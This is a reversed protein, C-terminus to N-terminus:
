IDVAFAEYRAKGLECIQKVPTEYDGYMALSWGPCQTCLANVHCDRCPTQMSHKLNRIQEMSKWAYDFNQPLVNVSPKRAMMCPTMNGCSDIHFSLKAAGCAFVQESRLLQGNFAKATDKWGEMRKPDQLDYSIVKATPLQYQIPWKSGDLRPWITADARFDLGLNSALLEMDMLEHNNITLLVSKLNVNIGCDKARQIGTLAKDFSGPRRTVAEYTEQRAGYISVEMSYLGLDALIGATESDLLTANTFLTVLLGKNRAHAFITSFDERLLPEGGTILLFLCGADSIQDIVRMWQSTTLEHSIAALSNQPQNIYCHVCALNCRETLEISGSLPFRAGQMDGLLTETWDGLDMEQAFSCQM